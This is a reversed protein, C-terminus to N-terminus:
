SMQEVDRRGENAATSVALQLVPHLIREGSTAGVADAAARASRAPDFLWGELVIGVTRDDGLLAVNTVGLRALKAVLEQRLCFEGRAGDFLVVMMAV